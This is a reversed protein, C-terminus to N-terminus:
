RCEGNDIVFLFPNKGWQLKEDSGSADMNLESTGVVVVSRTLTTIIGLHLSDDYCNGFTFTILM